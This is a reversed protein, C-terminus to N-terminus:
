DSSGTKLLELEEVHKSNREIFIYRHFPPEVELAIAASGKLFEKSEEEAFAEFLPYESEDSSSEHYGTGAFADIYAVKFRKYKMIKTYAYLYKKLRTLKDRTWEGGFQHGGKM